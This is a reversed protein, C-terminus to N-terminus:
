PLVNRPIRSCAVQSARRGDRRFQPPRDTRSSTLRWSSQTGITVSAQRLDSKTVPCRITTSPPMVMTYNEVEMRAHYEKTGRTTHPIPKRGPLNSHYVDSEGNLRRWRELIVNPLAHIVRVAFASNFKIAHPTNRRPHTSNGHRVISAPTAALIEVLCLTLM